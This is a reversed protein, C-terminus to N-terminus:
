KSRMVIGFTNGQRIIGVSVKTCMNTRGMKLWYLVKTEVATLIFWLCM